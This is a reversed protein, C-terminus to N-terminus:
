SSTISTRADRIAPSNEFYNVKEQLLALAENTRALEVLMEARAIVYALDAPAKDSAATDTSRSLATASGIRFTLSIMHRAALSTVPKPSSSM